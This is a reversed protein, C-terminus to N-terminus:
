PAPEPPACCVGGEIGYQLRGLEAQGEDCAVQGDGIDGKVIGGLCECEEATTPIELGECASPEGVPEPTPPKPGRAPLLFALALACSTRIM